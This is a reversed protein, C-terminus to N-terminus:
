ACREVERFATPLLDLLESPTLSREARDAAYIEAALGHVYAGVVAADGVSSGGAALGAILGTLVDGSGGTALGTNGTPNLYISGEPQAIVSPRGKLLLVIRHSSAFSGAAEIRRLAVTPVTEGLLPAFEGAHPTLVARGALREFLDHRDALARLGDADLVVPGDYATLIGELLASAGKWRSWGPGLAVADARELGRHLGEMSAEVLHGDAEPLALTIAEPVCTAVIPEIRGPVAATVLGAGARLAGRAMFVVAGSMGSAGGIVLVRGFTGKHGEAFRKPLRRLVGSEELVGALPRGEDLATSPYEVPIVATDGCLGAAPYFLHAPKLFQMALTLDAELVTGDLVAANAQIGSPVDLSVVRVDHRENITQAAAAADGSLPRRLGSGFLGDIVLSGVELQETLCEPTLSHTTFGGDRLRGLMRHCAPSLRDESTLLLTKVDTGGEGLIRAVVLADGGNGGPGALVVVHLPRLHELIWAAAGRGASEMLADESAGLRYAAEDLRRQEESTVVWREDVTKRTRGPM